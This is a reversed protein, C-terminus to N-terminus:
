VCVCSRACESALSDMLFSISLFLSFFDHLSLWLAPNKTETKVKITSCELVCQCMCAGHGILKQGKALFDIPCM